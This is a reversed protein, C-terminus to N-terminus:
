RILAIDLGIFLDDRGHYKANLYKLPKLCLCYFRGDFNTGYASSHVHCALASGWRLLIHKFDYGAIIGLLVGPSYYGGDYARRLNGNKRFTKRILIFVTLVRSRTSLKTSDLQFSSSLHCPRFHFVKWVSTSKAVLPASWDALKSFWSRPLLPQPCVWFLVGTSYYFWRELWYPLRWYNWM